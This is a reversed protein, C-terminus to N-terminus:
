LYLKLTSPSKLGWKENLTSLCLLLNCFFQPKKCLSNTTYKEIYIINEEKRACANNVPIGIVIGKVSTELIQALWECGLQTTPRQGFRYRLSELCYGWNPLLFITFSLAPLVQEKYTSFYELIRWWLLFNM